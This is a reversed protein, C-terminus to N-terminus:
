AARRVTAVARSVRADRANSESVWAAVLRSRNADDGGEGMAELREVAAPALAPVYAGHAVVARQVETFTAKAALYARPDGVRAISAQAEASPAAAAPTDNATAADNRASTPSDTGTPPPQPTLAARKAEAAKRLTTRQATTARTSVDPRMTGRERDLDAITTCQAITALMATMEAASLGPTAFAVPAAEVPQAVIAQAPAEIGLHGLDRPDAAPRPAPAAAPTGDTLWARLTTAMQAGPKEVVADALDSCRSKTVCAVHDASMEAVVDFEYELGDRQVPAMGVKRPVKKGRSDEELVYETKSRMTVILHARCQLMAEVLANHHPTVSRWADFSNRSNSQRAARDVMELAGGAGMWAHSLSDIVIVDAGAQECARIAEVYTAPAFTDLEGVEFSYRDAYKSASGRETDIVMVRAGLGQAIALATYTKGSGSPGIIALRLRATKKTAKSIKFAM